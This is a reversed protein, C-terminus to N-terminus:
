YTRDDRKKVEQIEIIRISTDADFLVRWRGVRLRYGYAHNTLVKVNALQGAREAIKRLQRQSKPKWDIAYMSHIYSIILLIDLDAMGALLM